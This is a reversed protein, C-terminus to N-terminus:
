EGCAGFEKDVADRPAFVEIFMLCEPRFSPQIPVFSVHGLAQPMKAPSPSYTYPVLYGLRLEEYSKCSQDVAEVM